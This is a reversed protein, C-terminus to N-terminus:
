SAIRFGRASSRIGDHSGCRHKGERSPNRAAREEGGSNRHPNGGRGRRNSRNGTPIKPPPTPPPPLRGRDPGHLHGAPLLRDLHLEPQEVAGVDPGALVVGVGGDGRELLEDEGPPRLIFFYNRFSDIIHLEDISSPYQLIAFSKSFRSDWNSFNRSTHNCHM